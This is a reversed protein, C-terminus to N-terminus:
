AMQARGSEGPSPRTGTVTSKVFAYAKAIAGTPADWFEGREPEFKLLIIHPDDQGNPFYAAAADNWLEAIMAKDRVVAFTGSLSVYCHNRPEAFAVCGQPAAAIEEDKHHVSDAFFWITNQVPRLIPTMPRSRLTEGDRTVMMCTEIDRVHNWIEDRTTDDDSDSMM